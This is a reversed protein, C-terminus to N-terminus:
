EMTKSIGIVERTTVTTSSTRHWARSRSRAGKARVEERIRRHEIVM